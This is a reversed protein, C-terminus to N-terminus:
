SSPLLRRLRSAYRGVVGGWRLAETVMSVTLGQWIISQEFLETKNVM